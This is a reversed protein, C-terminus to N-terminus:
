KKGLLGCIYRQYAVPDFEDNDNINGLRKQNAYLRYSHAVYQTADEINEWNLGAGILHGFHRQLVEADVAGEANIAGVMRCKKVDEIAGRVRPEDM